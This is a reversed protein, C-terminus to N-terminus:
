AGPEEPFRGSEALAVLRRIREIAQQRGHRGGVGLLGPLAGSSRPALQTAKFLARALARPRHTAAVADLDARFEERATLSSAVFALVPDWRMMRAFTRFFTLYRGDLERIHGLEHAVVADREESTLQELLGDSVLIVDRRRPRGGPGRELLTFAFAEAYPSEFALLSTPTAPAALSGPWPLSRPRLALLFGRGVAQSLLFATAFVGLAGAAGAVWLPAYRPEFLLVPSRSLEIAASWGGNALVWVLTTTVFIAWGALFVVALRFVTPSASRRVAIALVVGTALWGLVPVLVLTLPLESM